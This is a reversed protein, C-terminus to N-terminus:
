EFKKRYVVFKTDDGIQDYLRRATINEAQTHWYIDAVDRSRCMEAIGEILTQAVGCGRAHPSTFLDQMYCTQREQIMNFHFVVHVLGVMEGEVAAVLGAIPTAPDLIRAWTTDVVEPPLATDGERGYFANYKAWLDMWASKDLPSPLKVQVKELSQNAM